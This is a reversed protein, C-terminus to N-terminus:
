AESEGMPAEAGITQVSSPGDPKSARATVFSAVQGATRSSPWVWGIRSRACGDGGSKGTRTHSASTGAQVCWADM